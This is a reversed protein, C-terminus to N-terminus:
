RREFLIGCARWGQMEGLQFLSYALSIHRENVGVLEVPARPEHSAPVM